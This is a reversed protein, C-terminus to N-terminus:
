QLVGQEDMLVDAEASEVDTAETRHVTSWTIEELVLLVRKAGAPSVWSHPGEIITEGDETFVLARGKSVICLHQRAHRKSVVVLGAPIVLQRFYMGPSFLHLPEPGVESGPVERLLSDQLAYIGGRRARADDTVPLAKFEALTLDHAVEYGPLPYENRAATEITVGRMLNRFRAETTQVATVPAEIQPCDM